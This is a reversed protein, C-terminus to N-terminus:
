NQSTSEYFSSTFMNTFDVGHTDFTKFTKIAKMIMDWCRDQPKKLILSIYLQSKRKEKKGSGSTGEPSLCCCLVLHSSVLHISVEFVMVVEIPNQKKHVKVMTSLFWPRYGM